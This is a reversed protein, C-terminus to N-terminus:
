LREIRKRITLLTYDDYWSICDKNKFHRNMLYEFKELSEEFEESDYLDFTSYHRNRAQELVRALNAGRMYQYNEVSEGELNLSNSLIDKFDKIEYLRTEKEMFKPFFRGWINTSNQSRLRTYVFLYGDSRLVRSCEKLFEYLGFHHIANFTFICHLSGTKLPLTDAPAQVVSFNKINHEQLNATMQKLMNANLDVCTLSFREGLQDFMEIDYRGEGCGIDAAKIETLKRLKKQITLIPDRDTTRLDGYKHAINSFHTNVDKM